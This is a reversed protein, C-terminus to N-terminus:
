LIVRHEGGLICTQSISRLNSKPALETVQQAMEPVGEGGCGEKKKIEKKRLENKREDKREEKRKKKGQPM